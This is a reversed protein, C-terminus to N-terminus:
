KIAEGLPDRWTREVIRLEKGAEILLRMTLGDRWQVKAENVASERWMTGFFRKGLRCEDTVGKALLELITWDWIEISRYSTQHLFPLMSIMLRSSPEYRKSEILLVAKQESTEETPPPTPLPICVLNQPLPVIENVLGPLLNELLYPTRSVCPSLMVPTALLSPVQLPPLDGPKSVPRAPGLKAGAVGTDSVLVCCSELVPLHVNQQSAHSTAQSSRESATTERDQSLSDVVPRSRSVRSKIPLGDIGPAIKPLLFSRERQPSTQDRDLTPPRRAHNLSSSSERLPGTESHKHNSKSRKLCATSDGLGEQMRKRLKSRGILSIEKDSVAAATGHRSGAPSAPPMTSSSGSARQVISDPTTFLGCIVEGSSLRHENPAMESTDMRVLSPVFAKEGPRRKRNPSTVIDDLDFHEDQSDDWPLMVKRVGRDADELRKRWVEMEGQLTDQAPVRSAELALKQLEDLSVSEKWARDQHIKLVRPWRLAYYESNALKVFGGGMVEFVFPKRFAVAMPPGEWSAFKLSMANTCEASQVELARFQGHQNLYKLDSASLSQHVADLIVFEPKAGLQLVADKNKLCGIHFHTWRLDDLSYKSAAKGCYGAGVVAFDATDGLGTIYDKKLKIWCSSPGGAPRKAPGFYTEDSPKLVLGEWRQAIALAYQRRLQEPADNSSFNIDHQAALEARGPLQSVLRKLLRRRSVHPMKLCSEDDLLLVDYFVIMLHEYPHPLSDAATGLFSGSRSVHKRIKHFPLIENERDSWIVMEGEVICRSQFACNERGLRLCHKLTEHLGIRDATSDKGSKSFIQIANHSGRTNVHIQCYEGDYKREVSMKRHQIMSVAHKVSRAKAYATRGVKVGVSPKLESGDRLLHLAALFSDHVKMAMPMRTDISKFVVWEPIDIPGYDKLILRTLWKAERSQMRRYLSGLAEDVKQEAAGDAAARVSPASFRYGAAISALVNDVEEITSQQGLAQKPFEAEQLAREVCTGLDGRGAERWRDLYQHRGNGLALIRKLKRSLSRPQLGYVRDTRRQPLLASILAFLDIETTYVSIHLSNWWNTVCRNCQQRLTLPSPGPRRKWLDELDSLLDCLRTFPLPM